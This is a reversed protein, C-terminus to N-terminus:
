LTDLAWENEPFRVEVSDNQALSKLDFFRDCHDFNQDVIGSGRPGLHRFENDDETNEFLQLLGEPVRVQRTEADWDPIEQSPVPAKDCVRKLVDGFREDPSIHWLTRELQVRFYNTM